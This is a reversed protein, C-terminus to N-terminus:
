TDRLRVHIQWRLEANECWSILIEASAWVVDLQRTREDDLRCRMLSDVQSPTAHETEDIGVTIHKLARATRAMERSRRQDDVCVSSTDEQQPVVLSTTPQLGPAMGVAVAIKGMHRPPLRGFLRTDVPKADDGRRDIEVHM